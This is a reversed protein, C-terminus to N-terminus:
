YFKRSVYDNLDTTEPQNQWDWAFAAIGAGRLQNLWKAAHQRGANDHDGIVTVQRGKLQEIDDNRLNASGSIGVATWEWVREPKGRYIMCVAALLNPMGEVLFVNEYRGLLDIGVMRKGDGPQLISTDSKGGHAWKQFDMRRATVLRRSADTVCWAWTDGRWNNCFRLLGLEQCLHLERLGLRRRRAVVALEDQSGKRLDGRADQKACQSKLLFGIGKPFTGKRRVANACKAHLERDCWPPNCRANWDQVANFLQREDLDFGAAIYGLTKFTHLDGNQGESAPEIKALYNGVRDLTQM